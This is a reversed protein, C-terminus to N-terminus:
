PACTECPVSGQRFLYYVLYIIDATGIDGSCNVDGMEM